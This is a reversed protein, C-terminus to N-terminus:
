QSGNDSSSTTSHVSRVGVILNKVSSRYAQLADIGVRLDNKFSNGLGKPDEGACKFKASSSKIVDVTAQAFAKKAKVDAVLSSYIGLKKGKELYFKQTREALTSFLNAQKQARETIDGMIDAIFRERNQCALLKNGELRGQPVYSPEVTALDKLSYIGGTTGSLINANSGASIVSSGGAFSIIANGSNARAKFRATALLQKGSVSPLAGRDIRVLGGGGSNSAVISFASSSGISVFELLHAPYTLIVSAANVPESANVYISVTLASSQTINGSAPSLSLSAVNAFVSPVLLLLLGALMVFALVSIALKRKLQFLKKMGNKIKAIRVLKHKIRM